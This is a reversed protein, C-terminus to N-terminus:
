KFMAPMLPTLDQPATIELRKFNPMRDVCSFRKVMDGETYSYERGRDTFLLQLTQVDRLRQPRFELAKIYADHGSPNYLTVWQYLVEDVLVNFNHCVLAVQQLYRPHSLHEFIRLLVEDPLSMIHCRRAAPRHFRRLARQPISSDMIHHM